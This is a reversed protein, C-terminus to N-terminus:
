SAMNCNDIYKIIHFIYNPNELEGLYNLSLVIEENNGGHDLTYFTEWKTWPIPFFFLFIYITLATFIVIVVLRSINSFKM